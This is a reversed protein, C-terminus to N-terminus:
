LHSGASSRKSPAKARSPNKKLRDFQEPNEIFAMLGGQRIGDDDYWGYRSQAEKARRADREAMWQSFEDIEERRLASNM